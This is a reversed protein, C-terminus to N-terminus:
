IEKTTIDQVVRLLRYSPFTKACYKFSNYIEEKSTFTEREYATFVTNRRVSNSWTCEM